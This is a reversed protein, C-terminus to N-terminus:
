PNKGLQAAIEQLAKAAAKQNQERKKVALRDDLILDIATTLMPFHQLCEQEGLQHVGKSLISYVAANSVMFDPLHGSLMKIREVVRSKQYADEDWPQATAAVAHSENILQEIIRRLYVYSGIGIGHAHLGVARKYGDLLDKSLVSSFRKIDPSALDAASPYQGVKQITGVGVRFLFYMRHGTDAACVLELRFARPSSAYQKVPDGGFPTVTPTRYPEGYQNRDVTFVSDVCCEVCYARCKGVYNEIDLTALPRDPPVAVTQYLSVGFCFAEPSPFPAQQM